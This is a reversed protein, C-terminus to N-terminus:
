ISTPSVKFRWLAPSGQLSAPAKFLATIRLGHCGSLSGFRSASPFTFPPNPCLFRDARNHDYRLLRNPDPAFPRFLIFMLASWRKPFGLAPVKDAEVEALAM